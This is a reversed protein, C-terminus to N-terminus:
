IGWDALLYSCFRSSEQSGDLSEKIMFQRFGIWKDFFGIFLGVVSSKSM